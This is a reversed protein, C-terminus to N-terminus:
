TIQSKGYPWWILLAPRAAEVWQRHSTVSLSSQPSLSSRSTPQGTSYKHLLAHVTQAEHCKKALQPKTGPHHAFRPLATLTPIWRRLIWPVKQFLFYLYRRLQDATDLYHPCSLETHSPRSSAATQLSTIIQQPTHLSAKLQLSRHRTPGTWEYTCTFTFTFKVMSRAM